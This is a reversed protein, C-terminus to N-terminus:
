GGAGKRYKNLWEMFPPYNSPTTEAPITVGNKLEINKGNLITYGFYNHRLEFGAATAANYEDQSIGTQLQKITEWVEQQEEETELHLECLWVYINNRVREDLKVEINQM